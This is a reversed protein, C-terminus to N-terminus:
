LLTRAYAIRALVNDKGLVKLTLGMDPGHVEGILATRIPMYLDKGKFGTEAQIEKFTLKGFDESLADVALVRKEFADLLMGTQPMQM